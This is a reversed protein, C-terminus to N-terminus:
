PCWGGRPTRGRSTRTLAARERSNRQGRGRKQTVILGLQIIEGGWVGWPEAREIAGSLCPARLPCDRCLRKALELDAPSESFWLRPDARRCPTPEALGRARRVLPAVPSSIM